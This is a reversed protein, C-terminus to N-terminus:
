LDSGSLEIDENTGLPHQALILDCAEAFDAHYKASKHKFALFTSTARAYAIVSALLFVFGLFASVSIRIAIRRHRRAGDVKGFFLWCTGVFSGVLAWQLVFMCDLWAFGGIHLLIASTWFLTFAPENLTAIIEQCQDSWPLPLVFFVGVLAGIATPLFFRFVASKSM